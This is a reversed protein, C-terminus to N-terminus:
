LKLDEGAQVLVKILEDIDEKSHTASIQVRIEDRGPPVVPYSINTALIGHEFFYEVLAKTKATDGILVPQIPHYSVAAFTFSTKKMEEQFYATNKRSAELLKKGEPEDMLQVARLAAGATGPSISNSYIYTASSERLYDIVTQSAVVYGGDAGFAKGFTGVLVDAQVGEIEEIGRGTEGAIGVGHAEDVVLLIGMEYMSDCADIVERMEKLKQYEGLMSFVGDTVVVVRKFKGANEELVKKLAQPNMHEFIGRQEKPLGTIRVGDIISRHNLSDSLLLVNSDVLSTKTLGQSLCFMVALNAAFASSYVIADDRGHFKAVARELDRHVKMSGSIFRVAGPGAGYKESAAHEAKKLEPHHRLGLYDNSNFIRYEKGAIKAKPSPDNTFGEIVREKRKTTKGEDIRTIEKQLLDFFAQKM